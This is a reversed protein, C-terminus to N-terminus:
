ITHLIHSPCTLLYCKEKTQLNCSGSFSCRFWLGCPFSELVCPSGTNQYSLTVWHSKTKTKSPFTHLSYKTALVCIYLCSIHHSFWNEIRLFIALNYKAWKEWLEWKKKSRLLTMYNIKLRLLSSFSLRSINRWAGGVESIYREWSETSQFAVTGKKKVDFYKIHHFRPEKTM